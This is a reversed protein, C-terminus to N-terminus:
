AGLVGTPNTVYLLTKSSSDGKTRKLILPNVKITVILLVRNVAKARHFPSRLESNVKNKTQGYPSVRSYILQFMNM